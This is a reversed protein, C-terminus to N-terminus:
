HPTNARIRMGITEGDEGDVEVYFSNPREPMNLQPVVGKQDLIAQLLASNSALLEAIRNEQALANKAVQALEANFQQAMNQLAATFAKTDVTVQPAEVHVEPATVKIVPPKSAAKAAAVKKPTIRDKLRGM